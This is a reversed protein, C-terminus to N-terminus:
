KRYDSILLRTPRNIYFAFEYNGKSLSVGSSVDGNWMWKHKIDLDRAIYNSKKTVNSFNDSDFFSVTIKPTKGIEERVVGELEKIKNEIRSNSM